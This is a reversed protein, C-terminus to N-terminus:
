EGIERELLRFFEERAQREIWPLHGCEELLIFRVDPLVQRLPERIGEAPHPDYDGHIAVVPCQIRSVTKLLEGSARFEVMDSWASEYVDLQAEIMETELTIPDYADTRTFIHGLAAFLSNKNAIQPDAFQASLSEVEEREADTLRSMRVADIGTAYQAEFVGSGVLILRRVLDPFRSAVIAGLMAGWSSGILVVPTAAHTRIAHSLEMVQGELSHATQLPEVVGWRSALGRAVPAMTGPAGPGGHVVVVQYPAAGYIRPNDM